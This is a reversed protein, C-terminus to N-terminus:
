LSTSNQPRTRVVLPLSHRRADAGELTCFQHTQRRHLPPIGCQTLTYKWSPRTEQDVRQNGQCCGARPDRRFRRLSAYGGKFISGRRGSVRTTYFINILAACLIRMIMIKITWGNVQALHGSVLKLAAIARQRGGFHQTPISIFARKRQDGRADRAACRVVASCRVGPHLPAIWYETRCMEEPKDSCRIEGSVLGYMRRGATRTPITIMCAEYFFLIRAKRFADYFINISAACATKKRLIAASSSSLPSPGDVGEQFERLFYQDVCCWPM